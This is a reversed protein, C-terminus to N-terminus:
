IERERHYGNRYILRRGEENRLPKTKEIYEDIENKLALNLIIRAGHRSLEELSNINELGNLLSEEPEEQNNGNKPSYDKVAYGGKPRPSMKRITPYVKKGSKVRKWVIQKCSM